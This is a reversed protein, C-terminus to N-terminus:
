NHHKVAGQQIFVGRFDYFMVHFCLAVIETWCIIFLRQATAFTMWFHTALNAANPKAPASGSILGPMESEITM